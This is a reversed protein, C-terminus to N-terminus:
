LTSQGILCPQSKLIMDTDLLVRGSERFAFLGLYAFGVSTNPHPSTGLHEWAAGHKAKASSFLINRKVPLWFNM